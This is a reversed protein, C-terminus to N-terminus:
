KMLFGAMQTNLKRPTFRTLFAMINNIMGSIVFSKNRMLANFAITAAQKSSMINFGNKLIRANKTNAREQFATFTVGPCFATVKIGTDKLEETIAETFSLVYAKTASYVAMLPCAQFAALSSVNMIKGSKKKLMDPIVLYTLETLTTMNLAMMNLTEALDTQHFPGYTGFGANNILIDITIQQSQLETMVEKAALPQSLDKAIVTAKINHQTVLQKALDDLQQKSRAVLVLNYHKEAFLIALDKGIGSSAGTILVTQQTTM